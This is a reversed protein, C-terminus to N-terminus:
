PFTNILWKHFLSTSFISIAIESIWFLVVIRLSNTSHPLLEKIRKRRSDIHWKFLYGWSFRSIKYALLYFFPIYFPFQYFFSKMGISHVFIGIAFFVLSILLLTKYFTVSKLNSNGLFFSGVVIFFVGDIHLSSLQKNILSLTLVLMSTVLLLYFHLKKSIIASSNNKNPITRAYTFSNIGSNVISTEKVECCLGSLLEYIKSKLEFDINQTFWVMINNKNQLLDFEISQYNIAFTSRWNELASILENLKVDKILFVIDKKPYHIENM